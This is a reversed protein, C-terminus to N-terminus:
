IATTVGNAVVYAGPDLPQYWLDWKIAGSKSAGTTLYIEGQPCIWNGSNTGILVSGANAKVLATGDGEVFVTGGVELSTIDVTSAIDVATGVAASADSLKKSSVKVVPDSNQIITTVEGVLQRVLVRGGYVRYLLDTTTQPLSQAGRSVQLSQAVVPRGPTVKQSNKLFLAM